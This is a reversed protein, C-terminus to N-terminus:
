LVCAHAHRAKMSHRLENVDDPVFSKSQKSSCLRRCLWVSLFIHFFIHFRM